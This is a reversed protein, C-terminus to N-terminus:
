NCLLLIYIIAQTKFGRDRFKVRARLARMALAASFLLQWKKDDVVMFQATAARDSTGKAILFNSEVM